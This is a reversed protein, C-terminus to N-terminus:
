GDIGISKLDRFLAPNLDFFRDEPKEPKQDSVKIENWPQPSCPFPQDAKEIVISEITTGSNLVIFNRHVGDILIPRGDHIEIIPPLYHALVYDGNSDKGFVILATLKAIGRPVCFGQFIDGFNELLSIYNKRYVFKQGLFLSSPDTRLCHIPSNKFVWVKEEGVLRVNQLLRTLYDNPMAVVSETHILDRLAVVKKLGRSVFNFTKRTMGTRGLFEEFEIPQM